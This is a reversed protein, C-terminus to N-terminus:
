KFTMNMKIKAAGPTGGQQANLLGLAVEGVCRDDDAGVMHTAENDHSTGSRQLRPGQLGDEQKWPQRLPLSAM